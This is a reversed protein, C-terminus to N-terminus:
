PAPSLTGVPLGASRRWDRPTMGTQDKFANRFANFTRYGCLGAVEGVPNDTNALLEKARDIRTLAIEELISRGTAARFRAEAHRRSGPMWAAVEAATLGHPAQERIRRLIEALNASPSHIKRTSSRRLLQVPGFHRNAPMRKPNALKELLLEAALAGAKRFDLQISSLGPTNLLDSEDDVGLIAVEAPIRLALKQAVAHLHVAYADDAAFIGAPKPRERLWATLKRYFASPTSGEPDLDLTAVDRGNLRMAHVFVRKREESWPRSKGYGSYGYSACDLSLLERAALHCTARIDYSVTLKGSSEFGRAVDLYVVPTGRLSRESLHPRRGGCDVILGRANWFDVLERLASPGLDGTTIKRLSLGEATLRRSAGAFKLQSCAATQPSALYLIVDM